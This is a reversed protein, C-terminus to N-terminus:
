NFDMMWHSKEADLLLFDAYEDSSDIGLYYNSM